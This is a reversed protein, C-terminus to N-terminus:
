ARLKEFKRRKADRRSEAKRLKREQRDSLIVPVEAARASPTQIPDAPRIKEAAPRPQPKPAPGAQPAPAPADSRSPIHVQKLSWRLRSQLTAEYRRLRKLEANNEETLDSLALTREAEDIHAVVERRGELAAIERRAVAAPDSAPAVSRGQGDIMEGPKRGQRFVAPTGLLDFALGTQEETWGGAQIDASYALMAWRRSLWDCGQPTRRLTEVTRAPDRALSEGLIEAELLRDDDWSVEARLMAKYRAGREIRQCHDIRLSALAAQEVMWVGVADGPQLSASFELTRKEILEPSEPVVITACLGHQLANARSRSKGEETRPGTSHQANRRNASIRAESVEMAVLVEICHSEISNRVGFVCDHFRPAAFV